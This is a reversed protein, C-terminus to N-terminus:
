KSIFLYSQVLVLLVTAIKAAWWVHQVIFPCSNYSYDWNKSQTNFHGTLLGIHGDFDGMVARVTIEQVFRDSTRQKSASWESTESDRNYVTYCGYHDHGTLIVGPKGNKFIIDLVTQSVNKSLHNQSRLLNLKYPERQSSEKDYYTHKPGDYCLGEEKYFPVHTLLVTSGEFNRAQLKDLFNWTYELFEPQLAPGELFLDNLVVIRWAHETGADYEIWFSDKGFLKLFRTMHQWTADGSYGVDHNGTINIFLPEGTYSDASGDTWDYIDQYGYQFDELPTNKTKHIFAQWDLDEHKDIIEFVEKTHNEPQPFLRTLYRRTRNFFESDGIWQSSFLDGMVVVHTPKTRTKMINYIHGLYYDNGYNDFRKIYPTQPWNGNIQPDGVAMLKLDDVPQSKLHDFQHFLHTSILDGVYPISKLKYEVSSIDEFEPAPTWSCGAPNLSPYTYLYLNLIVAVTALFYNFTKVGERVSM